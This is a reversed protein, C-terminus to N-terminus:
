AAARVRDSSLTTRTSTSIQGAEAGGTQGRHPIARQPVVQRVLATSAPAPCPPGDAVTRVPPPEAVDVVVPPTAPPVLVVVAGLTLSMLLPWSM